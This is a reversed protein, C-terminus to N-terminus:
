TGDDDDEEGGVGEEDDDNDGGSDDHGGPRNPVVSGDDNNIDDYEYSPRGGAQRIAADIAEQFFDPSDCIPRIEV